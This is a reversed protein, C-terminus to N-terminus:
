GTSTQLWVRRILIKQVAAWIWCVGIFQYWCLGAESLGKRREPGSLSFYWKHHWQFMIKCNFFFCKVVVFSNSNVNWVLWYARHYLSPKVQFVCFVFLLSIVQFNEFTVFNLSFTWIFEYSLTLNKIKINWSM